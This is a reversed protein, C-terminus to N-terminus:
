PAAILVLGRPVFFFGDFCLGVSKANLTPVGNVLFRPNFTSWRVTFCPTPGLEDRPPFAPCDFIIFQHNITLIERGLPTRTPPPPGGVARISGGHPCFLVSSTTLPPLEPPLVPPSVGGRERAFMERDLAATTKIGVINDIKGQFNLIQRKQKFTTVAAATLPGYRGDPSLLSNDVNNLALQIKVVHPGSAGQFIHAADSVAAAELKPDTRFLQSQLAM